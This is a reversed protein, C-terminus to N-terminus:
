AAAFPDATTRLTGPDRGDIAENVRRQLDEDAISTLDEVMVMARNSRECEDRVKRYDRPDRVAERRVVVSDKLYVLDLKAEKTEPANPDSWIIDKGQQRAAEAVERYKAHDRAQERTITRAARLQADEYTEAM